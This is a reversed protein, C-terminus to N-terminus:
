KGKAAKAVGRAIYQRAIEEPLDISKGKKVPVLDDAAYVSVRVLRDANFKIRM